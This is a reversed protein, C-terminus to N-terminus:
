ALEEARRLWFSKKKPAEDKPAEPKKEVHVEKVVEVVKEKRKWDVGASRIKESLSALQSESVEIPKNEILPVTDQYVPYVRVHFHPVQAELSSFFVALPGLAKRIKEAVVLAADFAKSSSDMDESFHQYHKKPVVICMGQSRPMVDLFAVTDADEYVKFGPIEGKVIKCFICDSM